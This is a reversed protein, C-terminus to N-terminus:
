GGIFDLTVLTVSRGWLAKNSKPCSLLLLMLFLYYQNPWPGRHSVEELHWMHM